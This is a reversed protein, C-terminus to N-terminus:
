EDAQAAIEDVTRGTLRLAIWLAALTVVAMGHQDDHSEAIQSRRTRQRVDPM